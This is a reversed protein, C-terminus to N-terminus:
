TIADTAAEVAVARNIAADVDRLKTELFAATASPLGGASLAKRLPLAEKQLEALSKSKM